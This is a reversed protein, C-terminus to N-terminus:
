RWLEELGADLQVGARPSSAAAAALAPEHAPPAREFCALVDGTLFRSRKGYGHADDRSGPRHYYRMPVYVELARRGRTVAVYFLRREEELGEASTLAMDSPLNGDSANILYVVEWELGKASHITSLVVYDEELSPPGAFDASSTPPDLVLDAVFSELSHAGAAADALRRLDHVRMDGDPYAARVLPEVAELVVAARTGAPADAEAAGLGLVLADADARSAPPVGPAADPWREAATGAPALALQDAIRRASSPGVGEVLQLLRFWSVWDRPNVLVRLASVYDKVHAAELYRIGGYKVFPIGRRALELELLASHHAARMLVAQDRLRLGDEHRELVADAVRVGQEAEDLCDHLVPPRGGAREAVLRKRHAHRAAGAVANGVDLLAQPSRYNRELRVVGTDRHLTPFELIHRPEAARFAFIAQMDDGVVTLGRHGACLAGAISAQLANVDQYEDVLVHDFLSVVSPGLEPHTALARLALLLDDLDLMRSARKREGYLRFISAIAERHDLCWPFQDDLVESLTRQANVTRSYIDVLTAKRPFRRAGDALGAEERLMDMVDAADGADIVGFDAGLGLREGYLRLLRHAVSHFTGGVVRQGNAASGVLAAARYLLERAARRTFTLLLLREAPIGRGILWAVRACLATTKGTGAGALVLLPADRRATAANRQEENLGSLVADLRDFM